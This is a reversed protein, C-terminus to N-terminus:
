NLLGALNGCTRCSTRQLLAVQVDLARYHKALRGALAEASARGTDLLSIAGAVAATLSAAIASGVGGAGAVLCRAARAADASAPAHACAM